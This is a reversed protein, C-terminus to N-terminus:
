TFPEHLLLFSCEAFMARPLPSHAESLAGRGTSQQQTDEPPDQGCIPPGRATGKGCLRQSSSVHPIDTFASQVRAAGPVHLSSDKHSNDGKETSICKLHNITTSSSGAVKPISSSRTAWLVALTRPGGLM